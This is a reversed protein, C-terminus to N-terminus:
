TISKSTVKMVSSLIVSLVKLISLIVIILLLNFTILFLKIPSVFMLVERFVRATKRSSLDLSVFLTFVLTIVSISNHTKTLDIVPKVPSFVSIKSVDFHYDAQSLNFIKNIM